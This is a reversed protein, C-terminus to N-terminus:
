HRDYNVEYYTRLDGGFSLKFWGRKPSNVGEMDVEKIGERRLAYFADWLVMTGTHKDRIEPDNSGFLYYSRRSDMVFFAMSGVKGSSTRAAFMKGMKKQNLQEIVRRIKNLKGGSVKEGSELMTKVYFEIFQDISLVEDTQVNERRGYRIEQRRATSASKYTLITELERDSQFDSIGIYSTYRINAEYKPLTEGYNLWLFPRIDTITPHLALEILQYLNTLEGAVFETIRYKESTQQAQNQSNTPSGFMLGNYIVLDDLIANSGDKNEMVALAARLENKKYIFYQSFRCELAKLYADYSFITGNESNQVFTDWNNSNTARELRYESM